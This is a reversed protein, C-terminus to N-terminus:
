EQCSDEVSTKACLGLPNGGPRQDALPGFCIAGPRLLEGEDPASSLPTAVLLKELIRERLLLRILDSRSYPAIRNKSESCGYM